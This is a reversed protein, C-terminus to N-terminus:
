VRERCSARGIQTSFGVASYAVGSIAGNPRRAYLETQRSNQVAVVNHERNERRVATQWNRKTENRAAAQSMGDKVNKLAVNIVGGITENLEKFDKSDVANLVTDRIKEGIDGWDNNNNGM